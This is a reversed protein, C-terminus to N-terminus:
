EDPDDLGGLQAQRAMFAREALARERREDAGRPEVPPGGRSKLVDSVMRAAPASLRPGEVPEDEWSGRNLWVSPHVIYQGGQELWQPTRRQWELAALVVEISPRHKKWAARADIKGVKKPYAAWFRAFDASMLDVIGESRSRSIRDSGSPVSESLSGSESVGGGVGEERLSPTLALELPPALVQQDRERRESYESRETRERVKRVAGEAREVAAIGRGKAARASRSRERADEAVRTSRRQAARAMVLAEVAPAASGAPLSTMACVATMFEEDTVSHPAKVVDPAGPVITKDDPISVLRSLRSHATLCKAAKSQLPGKGVDGRYAVCLGM